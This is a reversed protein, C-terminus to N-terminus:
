RHRRLSKLNKIVKRVASDDNISSDGMTQSLTDIIILKYGDQKDYIGSEEWSMEDADFTNATLPVFDFDIDLNELIVSEQDEYDAKILAKIRLVLDQATTDPSLYWVKGSESHGLEQSGTIVELAIKLSLFTKFQNTPAYLIVIEGKPILNEIVWQREVGEKLLQKLKM